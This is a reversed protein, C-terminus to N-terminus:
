GENANRSAKADGDEEEAENALQDQVFLDQSGGEHDGGAQKAGEGGDGLAKKKQKAAKKAQAKKRNRAKRKAEETANVSPPQGVAREEERNEDEELGRNVREVNKIVSDLNCLFKYRRETTSIVWETVTSLTLPGKPEDILDLAAGEFDIGMYVQLLNICKITDTEMPQGERRANQEATVKAATIYEKALEVLSLPSTGDKREPSTFNAFIYEAVARQFGLFQLTEISHLYEPIALYLPEAIHQDSIPPWNFPNSIRRFGDADLSPAQDSNSSRTCIYELSFNSLVRQLFLWTLKKWIWNSLNSDEVLAWPQTSLAYTLYKYSYPLGVKQKDKKSDMEETMDDVDVLPRASSWTRLRHSM